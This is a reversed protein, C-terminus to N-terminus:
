PSRWASRRRARGAARARASAAPSRRSAPSPGSRRRDRLRGLAGLAHRQGDRRGRRAPRRAAVRDGRDRRRHDLLAQEGVRVTRAGVGGAPHELDLVRRRRDRVELVVEGVHQVEALVLVRQLRQLCARLDDGARDEAPEARAGRRERECRCNMTRGAPLFAGYMSGLGIRSPQFSSSAVATYRAAPTSGTRRAARWSRMSRGPAASTWPAAALVAHQGVRADLDVRAAAAVDLGAQDVAAISARSRTGPQARPKVRGDGPQFAARAGGTVAADVGGARAADDISMEFILLMGTSPWWPLPEIVSRM